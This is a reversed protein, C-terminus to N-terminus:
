HCQPDCIAPDDLAGALCTDLEAACPSMDPYCQADCLCVIMNPTTCGQNKTCDYLAQFAAQAAAGGKAKATAVCSDDACDTGLAHARIEACSWDSAGGAGGGGGSGGVGADAPPPSSGNGNSSSCSMAASATSLALAALRAVVAIRTRTM